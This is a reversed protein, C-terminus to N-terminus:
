FLCKLLKTDVFMLNFFCFYFFFHIIVEFIYIICVSFFVVFFCELINVTSPLIINKFDYNAINKLHERILM